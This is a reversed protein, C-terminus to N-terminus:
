WWPKFTNFNIFEQVSDTEGNMKDIMHALVTAYIQRGTVSYHLGDALYDDVSPLYLDFYTRFMTDIYFLDNNEAVNNCIKAYDALTGLGKTITYADGIMRGTADYWICYSPGCMIILADPSISQLERIGTELAGAYTQVDWANEENYFDKGSLYDNAGYEIIYCDVHKPDIARIQEQVVPHNSLIDSSVKGSLIYTMGVFCPETWKDPDPSDNRPLSAPTGGIGLNYISARPTELVKGVLTPIDTDSDRGNAFQSDGLFVINYRNKRFVVSSAPKEEQVEIEPEALDEQEYLVLDEEAVAESNKPKLEDNVPKEKNESPDEDKKKDSATDEATKESGSDKKKDDSQVTDTSRTDTEAEAIEKSASGQQVSVEEQSDGTDKQETNNRVTIISILAVAVVLLIAGMSVAVRVSGSKFM